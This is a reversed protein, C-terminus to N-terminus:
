PAIDHTYICVVKYTNGTRINGILGSGVLSVCLILQYNRMEGENRNAHMKSSISKGTKVGCMCVHYQFRLM